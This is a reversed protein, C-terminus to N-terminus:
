EPRTSIGGPQLPLARQPLSSKGSHESFNCSCRDAFQRPRRWSQRLKTSRGGSFGWFAQVSGVGLWWHEGQAGGVAASGSGWIDNTLAYLFPLATTASSGGTQGGMKVQRGM